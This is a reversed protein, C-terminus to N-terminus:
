AVQHDEALARDAAVREYQPFHGQGGALVVVLRQDLEVVQQHLVDQEGGAIRGTGQHVAESKAM